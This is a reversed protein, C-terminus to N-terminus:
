TTLYKFLEKYQNYSYKYKKSTLLNYIYKDADEKKFVDIESVSKETLDHVLENLLKQTGASLTM